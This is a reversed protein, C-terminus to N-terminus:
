SQLSCAEHHLMSWRLQGTVMSIIIFFLREIRVRVDSKSTRATVTQFSLRELSAGRLSEWRVGVPVGSGRRRTLLRAFDQPLGSSLYAYRGSVM